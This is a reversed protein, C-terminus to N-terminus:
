HPPLTHTGTPLYPTHAQVETPLYPTHAQPSTLHTHRHPPLTHTGTPLYHFLSTDLTHDLMASFFAKSGVLLDTCPAHGCSNVAVRYWQCEVEATHPIYCQMDRTVEGQYGGCPLRGRTVKGQYGGGPLSSLSSTNIHGHNFPRPVGHNVSNNLQTPDPSSTTASVIRTLAERQQPTVLAKLIAELLLPYKTLRQMPMALFDKLRLRKCQPRSECWQSILLLFPHPPPLFPPPTYIYSLCFVNHMDGTRYRQPHCTCIWNPLYQDFIKHSACHMESARMVLVFCFHKCHERLAEGGGGWMVM